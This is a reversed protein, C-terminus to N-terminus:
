KPHGKSTRIELFLDPRNSSVITTTRQISNFDECSSIPVNWKKRENRKVDNREYEWQVITWSITQEIFDKTKDSCLRETFENTWYFRKNLIFFITKWFTIKYIMRKTFVITKQSNTLFLGEILLFNHILENLFYITRDNRQSTWKTRRDNTKKTREWFNQENLFVIGM